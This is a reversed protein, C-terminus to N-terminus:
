SWSPIHLPNQRLSAPEEVCQSITEGTTNLIPLPATEHNREFACMEGFFHDQESDEEVRAVGDRIAIEFLDHGLAANAHIM